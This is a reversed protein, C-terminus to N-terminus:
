PIQVIDSTIPRANVTITQSAGTAISASCSGIESSTIILTVDGVYDNLHDMANIIAEGDILTSSLPIGNLTYSVNAGVSGTITFVADTISCVSSQDATVSPADPAPKLNVVMLQPTGECSNATEIVQVTFSNNINADTSGWDITYKNGNATDTGNFGAGQITWAYTSGAPGTEAGTSYNVGLKLPVSVCADIQNSTQAFGLNVMLMLCAAFLFKLYDKTMKM